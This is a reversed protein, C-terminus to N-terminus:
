PSPVWLGRVPGLFRAGGGMCGPNGRPVLFFISCFITAAIEELPKFVYEFDFVVEAFTKSCGGRVVIAALPCNRRPGVRNNEALTHPM